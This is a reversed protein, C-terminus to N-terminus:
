RPELVLRTGLNDEPAIVWTGDGAPSADALETPDDVAFALHHVRGTRGGIWDALAGAGSPEVLRLRGGGPWELERWRGSGDPLRHDDTSGVGQLIEEGLLVDEFLASAEDLSAVAHTVRVLAAPNAPAAAPFQDPPPPRVWGEDHSEAVQVVVGHSAKPHLFAEMWERFELNISVPPYGAATVADIAVHIDAVKFTLHHPGPGSHDLFRRLFDNEDVRHPRLIELNMGSAYRLQNNAFGVTAGSGLWEGGLEARYREWAERRHESAVAVHDLDITGPM